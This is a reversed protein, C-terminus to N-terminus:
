NKEDHDKLVDVMAMTRLKRPTKYQNATAGTNQLVYDRLADFGGPRVLHIRPHSISGEGRLRDYDCNRNRLEEDVKDKESQTLSPSQSTTELELFILYYPNEEGSSDDTLLTSEAVAYDTLSDCWSWRAVAARISADLVKQDMKEYKLNLIQGIRFMFKLIPSNHYFGAVRFVDGLRYRYLGSYGNTLVVEYCEDQTLEDMLYTRPQEKDVDEYRIFESVVVSPLPIIGDVDSLKPGLNAGLFGETCGFGSTFLPVGQSFSGDVKPWVGTSDIAFVVQLSPWIRNVIGTFGKEFERRLERARKPDGDGFAESLGSRIETPLHLKSNITGNEMDQVIERWCLKLQKLASLLVSVFGSMIMRIDRDRMGFLLHIYNAEYGTHIKFAEIPSTYSSFFLGNETPLRGITEILAGSKAQSVKPAVYIYM